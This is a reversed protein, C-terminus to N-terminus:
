RPTGGSTTSQLRNFVNENSRRVLDRMSAADGRQIYSQTLNRYEDPALGAYKSLLLLEDSIFTTIGMAQVKQSFRASMECFQPSTLGDITYPFPKWLIAPFLLRIKMQMSKDIYDDDLAINFDGPRAGWPTHPLVGPPTVPVADPRTSAIFDLTEQETEPTEGPTPFIFSVITYIGASKAALISRLMQAPNSPKNISQKLQITSGSEGGFFVAYLGSEKLTRFTSESYGAAVCFMTYELDLKRRIIEEAIAKSLSPPTASGAYRFASIGHRDIFQEMDDVIKEPSRKRLKDGSKFPQICFNCKGYFCGRSEDLTIVKIKNDGQMALYIDPDYIATPLLDLDDIFAIWTKKVPSDKGLGDRYILNPITELPRGDQMHEAIMPLTHEGEGFVLIDFVDTMDLINEVFYDVQPGGGVIMTSPSQYRIEEALTISGSFGDGNWLKFGVLDIGQAKVYSAINKALDHTAAEQIQSIRKELDQLRSVDKQDLADDHIDDLIKKSLDALEPGYKGPSLREMCDVSGFDQIICSHGKDILSAALMAMGNDLMFSSPTYPYGAFSVLLTKLGM